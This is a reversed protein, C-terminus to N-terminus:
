KCFWCKNNISHLSNRPILNDNGFHSLNNLNICSRSFHITDNLINSHLRSYTQNQNQKSINPPNPCNSSNAENKSSNSPNALNTGSWQSRTHRSFIHHAANANTADAISAIDLSQSQVLAVPVTPSTRKCSAFFLFHVNNQHSVNCVPLAARFKVRFSATIGDKLTPKKKFHQQNNMKAKSRVKKASEKAENKNKRKKKQSSSARQRQM